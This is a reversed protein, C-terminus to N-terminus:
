TNYRPKIREILKRYHLVRAEALRVIAGKWNKCTPPARFGALGGRIPNPASDASFRRSSERSDKHNICIFLADIAERFNMYIYGIVSCKASAARVATNCAGRQWRKSLQEFPFGKKTATQKTCIIPLTLLKICVCLFSHRQSITPPLYDSDLPLLGM